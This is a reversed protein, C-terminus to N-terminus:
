GFVGILIGLFAFFAGIIWLRMTVK